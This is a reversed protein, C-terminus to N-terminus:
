VMLMFQCDLHMLVLPQMNLPGIKGSGAIGDIGVGQFAYGRPTKLIASKLPIGFEMTRGYVRGGDTGALVMSTCAQVSSAGLFCLAVTSLIFKTTKFM